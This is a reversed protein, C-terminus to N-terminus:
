VPDVAARADARGEELDFLMRRMPDETATRDEDARATATILADRVVENGGRVMDGDVDVGYRDRVEDRM